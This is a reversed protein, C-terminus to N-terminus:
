FRDYIYIEFVKEECWIWPTCRFVHKLRTNYFWNKWPLIHVEHTTHYISQHGGLRCGTFLTILEQFYPISNRTALLWERKQFFFIPKLPYSSHVRKKRKRKRKRKRKKIKQTWIRNEIAILNYKREKTICFIVLISWIILKGVM